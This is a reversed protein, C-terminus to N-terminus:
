RKAPYRNVRYFAQVEASNAQYQARRKDRRAVPSVEASVVATTDAATAIGFLTVARLLDRRPIMTKRWEDM